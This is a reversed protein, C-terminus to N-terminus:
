PNRLPQAEGNFSGDVFLLNLLGPVAMRANGAFVGNLRLGTPGTPPGPEPPKSDDLPTGPYDEMAVQRETPGPGPAGPIYGAFMWDHRYPSHGWGNAHGVEHFVVKGLSIGGRPDDNWSENIDYLQTTGTQPHRLHDTPRIGINPLLSWALTNQPGDIQGDIMSINAEGISEVIRYRLGSIREWHRLGEVVSAFVKDAFRHTPRTGITRFNVHVRIGERYHSWKGHRGREFRRVLPDVAPGCHDPCGCRPVTIMYQLVSSEDARDFGLSDMAEGHYAVYRDTAWDFADRDNILVDRAGYGAFELHQIAQAARVAVLSSLRAINSM